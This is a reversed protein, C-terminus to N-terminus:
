DLSLVLNIQTKRDSRTLHALELEVAIARPIGQLDNIKTLHFKTVNMTDPTIPNIQGNASFILRNNELYYTKFITSTTLYIRGQDSDFASQATDIGSTNRFSDELHETIFIKQKALTNDTNVKLNSEQISLVFQIIATFIIAFLALYIITEVLTIAKLKKKFIKKM